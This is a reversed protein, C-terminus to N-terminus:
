ERKEEEMQFSEIEEFSSSSQGIINSFKSSSQEPHEFKENHAHSGM